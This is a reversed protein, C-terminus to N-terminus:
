SSQELTALLIRLITIKYDTYSNLFNDLKLIINDIDDYCNLFQIIKDQTNLDPIIVHYNIFDSTNIRPMAAGVSLHYKINREEIWLYYYLYKSNLSKSVTKKIQILSAAKTLSFKVNKVYYFSGLYAGYNTFWIYTGDYQYNNIMAFVHNNITKSSYVPYVGPNQLCTQKTLKSDGINVLCVDKILKKELKLNPNNKVDFYFSFCYKLIQQKFQKLQKKLNTIKIKLSKFDEELFWLLDVFYNQIPISPLFIDLDYAELNRLQTRNATLYFIIEIKILYLYLYKLNVNKKFNILIKTTEYLSFKQNQLYFFKGAYEKSSIRIFYITEKLDLDYHKWYGTAIMNKSSGYVPYKGPHKNLYRKTLKSNGGGIDCIEKLKFFNSKNNETAL